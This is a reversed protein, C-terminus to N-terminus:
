RENGCMQSCIMAEEVLDEVVALLSVPNNSHHRNVAQPRPLPLAAGDVLTRTQPLKQLLRRRVGSAM